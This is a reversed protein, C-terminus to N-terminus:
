RGASDQVDHVTWVTRWQGLRGASDQVRRRQGLRGASDQVTRCQGIRGVSDQVDQVKRCQVDQVASLKEESKKV